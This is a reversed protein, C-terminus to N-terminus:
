KQKTIPKITKRKISKKPSGGIRCFNNEKLIKIIQKTLDLPNYIILQSLIKEVRNDINIKEIIKYGLEDLVVMNILPCKVEIKIQTNKVLGQFIKIVNSDASMPNDEIKKEEYITKYKKLYNYNYKKMDSIWLSVDFDNFSEFDFSISEQEYNINLFKIFFSLKDVLVEMLQFKRLQDLNFHFTYEKILDKKTNIFSAVILLGKQIFLTNFVSSNINNNNMEENINGNNNNNDSNNNLNNDITNKRRNLDKKFDSDIRKMRSNDENYSDNYNNQNINNNNNNKDYSNSHDRTSRWKISTTVISILDFCTLINRKYKPQTIYFSINKKQPVSSIQELFNRFIKFTSLYKIIYFDWMVFQIHYLYFLLDYNIYKMVKNKCSPIQVTILPTEITLIYSKKSTIWLFEYISISSFSDNNTKNNFINYQKIEIKKKLNAISERAGNRNPVNNNDENNDNNISSNKYLNYNNVASTLSYNTNDNNNILNINKSTRSLKNNKNNEKQFEKFAINNQNLTNFFSFQKSKEDEVNFDVCNKLINGIIEDDKQVIEFTENSENYIILKSSIMLFTDVGKFYFLPLLAFPLTYQFVCKDGKEISKSNENKINNIKIKLSDLTLSMKIKGLGYKYIKEKQTTLNKNYINQLEIIKKRIIDEYLKKKGFIQSEDYKLTDYDPENFYKKESENFDIKLYFDCSKNYKLMKSDNKRNRLINHTSEMKKPSLAYNINNINNMNDDYNMMKNFIVKSSKVISPVLEGRNNFLPCLPPLKKSRIRLNRINYLPSLSNKLKLTIKNTKEDNNISYDESYNKLSTNIQSNGKAKSLILANLRVNKMLLPLQKQYLTNNHNIMYDYYNSSQNVTDKTVQLISDINKIIKITKM